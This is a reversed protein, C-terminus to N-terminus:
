GSIEEGDMYFKINSRAVGIMKALEAFADGLPRAQTTYIYTHVFTSWKIQCVPDM